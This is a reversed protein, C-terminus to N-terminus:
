TIQRGTVFIPVIRLFLSRDGPAWPRLPLHRLRELEGEDTVQEAAGQVLVSWGERWAPDVHDVEFAVRTNAALQALLSGPALRVVVADGDLYYNVPMILPQGDLDAVGIRGVRVPHSRLRRMCEEPSLYSLGTTLM